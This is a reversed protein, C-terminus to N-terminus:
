CSIARARCRIVDLACPGFTLAKDRKISEEGVSMCVM